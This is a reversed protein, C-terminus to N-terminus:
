AAGLSVRHLSFPSLFPFFFFRLVLTRLWPMNFTFVRLSSQEEVIRLFVVYLSVPFNLFFLVDFTFSFLRLFFFAYWLEDCPYNMLSLDCSSSQAKIPCFRFFFFLLLLYCTFLFSWM